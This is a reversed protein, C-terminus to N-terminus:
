MRGMPPVYTLGGPSQAREVAQGGQGTQGPQGAGEPAFLEALMGLLMKKVEGSTEQAEKLAKLKQVQLKQKEVELHMQKVKVEELKVL